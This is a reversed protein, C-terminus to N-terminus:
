EDNLAKFINKVEDANASEIIVEDITITRSTNGTKIHNKYGKMRFTIPNGSLSSAKALNKVSTNDESISLTGEQDSNLELRTKTSLSEASIQRIVNEINETIRPLNPYDIEFRIMKINQPYSQVIDWFEREKYEKKINIRLEYQELNKMFSNQLIRAVVETSSFANTNQEIAIRQENADNYIIVYSSPESEEIEEIFDKEFRIVKKNALRLIIIDDKACVQKVSLEKNLHKFITQPVIEEFISNKSEMIKNQEEVSNGFLTPETSLPSFQYTYQDFTLM